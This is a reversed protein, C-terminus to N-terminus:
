ATRRAQGTDGHLRRRHRELAERSAQAILADKSNRYKMLLPGAIEIPVAGLARLACAKQIHWHKPALWSRRLLTKELLPFVEEPSSRALSEYFVAQEEFERKEFGHDLLVRLLPQLAQPGLKEGLLKAAAQRVRSDDDGLAQLLRQELDPPRVAALFQLVGVRIGPDGGAFMNSLKPSWREAQEPPVPHPLIKALLSLHGEKIGGRNELIVEPRQAAARALAQVPIGREVTGTSLDLKAAAAELLLALGDTQLESLFTVAAKEDDCRDSAVASLARKAAEQGALESGLALLMEARDGTLEQRREGVRQTLRAFTQFKGQQLLDLGYGRLLDVVREFESRMLDMLLMEALVMLLKPRLLRGEQKALNRLRFLEGEEARLTRADLDTEELGGASALYRELPHIGEWLDPDDTEAQPPEGAEALSIPIQEESPDMVRYAVSPLDMEWLLVSLDEDIPNLEGRITRALLILLVQLESRTVGQLFTLDRLGSEFLRVLLDWGEEDRSLVVVGNLRTDEQRLSIRIEESVQCCNGLKEALGDILRERVPNGDPYFGVAKLAGQFAGFAQAEVGGHAPVEIQETNEQKQEM